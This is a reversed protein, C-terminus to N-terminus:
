GRIQVYIQAFDHYLIHFFMWENCLFKLFMIRMVQIYFCTFALDVNCKLFKILYYINIKLSEM